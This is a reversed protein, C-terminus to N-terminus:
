IADRFLLYSTPLWIAIVKAPPRKLWTNNEVLHNGRGSFKCLLGLLYNLGKSTRWPYARNAQKAPDAAHWLDILQPSTDFHDDCCWTRVSKVFSVVNKLFSIVSTVQVINMKPWWMLGKQCKKFVFWYKSLINCTMHCTKDFWLLTSYNHAVSVIIGAQTSSNWDTISARCVSLDRKTTGEPLMVWIVIDEVGQM